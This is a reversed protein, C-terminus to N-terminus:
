LINIQSEIKIRIVGDTEASLKVHLEISLHIFITSNFFATNEHLLLWPLDQIVHVFM